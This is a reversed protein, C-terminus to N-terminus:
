FLEPTLLIESKQVGATVLKQAVNTIRMEHKKFALLRDFDYGSEELDALADETIKFTHQVDDIVLTFLVASLGLLQISTISPVM